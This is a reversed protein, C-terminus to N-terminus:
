GLGGNIRCDNEYDADTYDDGDDEDDEDAAYFVEHCASCKHIEEDSQSDYDPAVNNSFCASESYHKGSCCDQNEKCVPGQDREKM